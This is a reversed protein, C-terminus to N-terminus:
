EKVTIYKLYFDIKDRHGKIKEHANDAEGNTKLSPISSEIERMSEIEKQIAPKIENYALYGSFLGLHKVEHRMDFSFSNARVYGERFTHKKYLIIDNYVDGLEIFDFPLVIRGTSDILGYTVKTNQYKEWEKKLIGVKAFGNIFPSAHKFMAPIIIENKSNKYGYLRSFTDVYIEFSILDPNTRQKEIKPIENESTDIKYASGTFSFYMKKSNQEVTAFGKDFDSAESFIPNTMFVFGSLNTDEDFFRKILLIEDM